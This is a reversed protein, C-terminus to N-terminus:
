TINPANRFKNYQEKAREVTTGGATTEFSSHKDSEKKGLKCTWREFFLNNNIRYVGLIHHQLLYSRIFSEIEEKNELNDRTIVEVETPEGKANAKSYSLVVSFPQTDPFAEIFAENFAKLSSRNEAITNKCLVKNKYKRSDIVVGQKVTLFNEKEYYREFGMHEYRIMKGQIVRLDGSFWSAKVGYEDKYASFVSENQPIITKIVFDKTEFKLSDLYLSRKKISWYGVYGRWLSTNTITEAPRVEKIAKRVVSDAEIPCSLMSYMKGKIFISEGQQGTATTKAPFLACFIIFLLIYKLNNMKLMMKCTLREIPTM